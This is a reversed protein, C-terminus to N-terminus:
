GEPLAGNRGLPHLVLSHLEGAAPTSPLVSLRPVPVSSFTGKWPAGAQPSCGRLGRSAAVPGLVAPLGAAGAKAGAAGGRPKGPAPAAPFDCGRAVRCTEPGTRASM